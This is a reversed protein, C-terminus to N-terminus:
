QTIELSIDERKESINKRWFPRVKLSVIDITENDQAIGRFQKQPRSAISSILDDENIQYFVLLDGKASLEFSTSNKIDLSKSSLNVRHASGPRAQVGDPLTIHNELLYDALQEVSVVAAVATGRRSFVGVEGSEDFVVQADKFVFDPSDQVLIVMDTKEKELRVLLRDTLTKTLEEEAKKQREPTLYPEEGIFGGEIKTKSVGYIGAYRDDLGAEQFGPISFDTLGSNYTPGSLEAFIQVDITGPNTRNKGPIIVEEDGLTYIKGGASRFRTGASLRQPETSYENYITITGTAKRKVPRTETTTVTISEEDSIAIVDFGLQDSEPNRYVSFSENITVPEVHSRIELSTKATANGYWIVLLLVFLVQAVFLVIKKNRYLFTIFSAITKTTQGKKTRTPPTYFSNNFVPEEIKKEISHSHLVSEIAVKQTPATTRVRKKIDRTPNKKKPRLAQTPRRKKSVDVPLSHSSVTEFSRTKRVRRKRVSSSEIGGNIKKRRKESM